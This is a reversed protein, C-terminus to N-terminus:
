KEMVPGMFHLRTAIYCLINHYSVTIVCCILLKEYEETDCTAMAKTRHRMM